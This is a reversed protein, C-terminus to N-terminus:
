VTELIVYRNLDDDKGDARFTEVLTLGKLTHLLQELEDTDTYHCYRLAREGRRWDLLYDHTELDGAQIHPQTSWPIARARWKEKEWFQWLTFILLGGPRLKQACAELLGARRAFAPVHHLVNHLTVLHYGGPLARFADFDAIFDIQTFEAAEAPLRARAQELLYANADVGHYFPPQTFQEFLFVGFQASGCGVDLARCPTPQPKIHELVTHWGRRTYRRSDDYHAGVRAYFEQNIQNLQRITEKDM